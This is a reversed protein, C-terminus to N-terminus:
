DSSIEVKEEEVAISVVTDVAIGHIVEKVPLSCGDRSTFEEFWQKSLLLAFKYKSLEARVKTLALKYQKHLLDESGAPARQLITLGQEMFQGPLNNSKGEKMKKAVAELTPLSSCGKIKITFSRVMEYDRAEGEIVGQVPPSYAGNKIGNAELFAESEPQLQKAREKEEKKHQNLVKMIAELRLEELALSALRKASRAQKAMKKNITPLRTLDIVIVNMGDLEKEILETEILNLQQLYVKTEASCTIPIRNVNLLGNKILTYNRFVKTWYASPLGLMEATKGNQPQLVISGTIVGLVSLNLKEKSWTLSAFPIGVQDAEFKAYGEVTKRAKGIRQYAFSPHRPYFRAERDDMLLSLLDILCFADEPPVCATDRGEKFRQQQDKIAVQLRSEVVGYESNTYSNVVQKLISKDGIWNLLDIAEASQAKQVLILAGAYAARLLQEDNVNCATAPLNATGTIQWVTEIEEDLDLTLRDTPYGVVKGQQETFTILPSSVGEPLKVKIKNNSNAGTLFSKLAIKVEQLDRSHILVGAARETMQQMLEKNYSEGYGIFLSSTLREKVQELVAYIKKVEQQYNNVVPHGDTFFAFSFYPSLVSLDTIARHLDELSESFCTMGITTANARITQEVIAHDSDSTVKFGKLLLNHQGEGSFWGLTLSDGNPVSRVQEILDECLQPLVGSMSGSRDYLWIHNIASRPNPAVRAVREVKVEVLSLSKNIGFVRAISSNM